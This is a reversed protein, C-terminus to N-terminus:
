NGYNDVERQALELAAQIDERVADHEKEMIRNWETM